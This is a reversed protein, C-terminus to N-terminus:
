VVPQQVCESHGVAVSAEPDRLFPSVHRVVLAPEEVAYFHDTGAILEHRCRPLLRALHEAMKQYPSSAGYVALVPTDITALKEETLGAIQRFESGVRTGDLLRRLRPTMPTLGKRFGSQFPVALSLKIFESVDERGDIELLRELTIGFPALAPGHTKWGEWDTLIRLHRLCPLGVDLLAIGRFREPQLLAAHLAVAGGFSHGVLCTREIRLHDLLALLDHALAESTYGSATVESLGHGRLDYATVRHRSALAPLIDVYWQALCSSIGHVLVVDPGAGKVQYHVSIGNLVAKAM